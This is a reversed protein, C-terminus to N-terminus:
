EGTLLERKRRSNCGEEVQSVGRNIVGMPGQAAGPVTHPKHTNAKRWGVILELCWSAPITAGGHVQCLTTRLLHQFFSYYAKDVVCSPM